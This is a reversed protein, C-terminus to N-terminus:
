KLFQKVMRFIVDASGPLPMGHAYGAYVHLETFNGAKMLRDAYAIGSDRLPDTGAVFIVTPPLNSVDSINGPLVYKAKSNGNKGIYMREMIPFDDSKLGPVRKLEIASPYDTRFDGPLIELIELGIKPGKKDRAFQALSGSLGAGASSGGVAILAPNGGISKAHESAWLLTAYADHLGAPFPNEPALRYDVNIVVMHGKVAYDACRQHDWKPTGFIFGGGHFWLFVPLNQANKPKYITVPIDPDKPDMGPIKSQTVEVSDKNKLEPWPKEAHEKRQKKIEDLTIETIPTYVAMAFQPLLRKGAEKLTLPKYEQSFLLGSVLVFMLKLIPNKM